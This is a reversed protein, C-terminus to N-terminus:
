DGGDLETFLIIAGVWGRQRVRESEWMIRHVHDLVAQWEPECLFLDFTAGGWLVDHSLLQLRYRRLLQWGWLQM